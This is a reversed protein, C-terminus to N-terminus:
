QTMVDEAHAAPTGLAGALAAMALYFRCKSM